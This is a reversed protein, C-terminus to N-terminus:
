QDRVTFLRRYYKLPRRSLQKNHTTYMHTKTIGINIELYQAKIKIDLFTKAICPFYHKPNDYLVKLTKVQFAQIIKFISCLDKSNQTTCPFRHKPHEYIIKPKKVLLNINNLCRFYTKQINIMYNFTANELVM